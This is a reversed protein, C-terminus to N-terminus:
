WYRHLKWKQLENSANVTYQLSVFWVPQAPQFANSSNRFILHVFIWRFPKIATCSILIKLFLFNKSIRRNIISANELDSSRCLFFFIELLQVSLCRLSLAKTNWYVWLDIQTLLVNNYKKARVVSSSSIIFELLSNKRRM